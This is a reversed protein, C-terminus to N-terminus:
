SARLGGRLQLLGWAAITHADRLQQSRVLDEFEEVTVARQKIEGEEPEPSSEGPTLDTALFASYTQSSHGYAPFLEGLLEVRGASFGTEERLEVRAVEEMPTGPADQLAGQPFEWVFQQVTHRWLGVLHLREGDWPIILAFPPKDVVGYIGESGDSLRIADERLTLWRNEYVVRSSLTEIPPPEAM